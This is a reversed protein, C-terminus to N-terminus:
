NSGCIGQFNLFLRITFLFNFPPDLTWYACRTTPGVPGPDTQYIKFTSALSDSDLRSNTTKRPRRIFWPTPLRLRISLCSVGLGQNAFACLENKHCHIKTIQKRSFTIALLVNDRSIWWENIKHNKFLPLAKIGGQQLDQCRLFFPAIPELLSKLIRKKELMLKRSHYNRSKNNMM